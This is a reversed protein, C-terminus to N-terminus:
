QKIAEQMSRYRKRLRIMPVSVVSILWTLTPWWKSSTAMNDRLLVCVIEHRLQLIMSLKIQSYNNEIQNPFWIFQNVVSLKILNHTCRAQGVIALAYCELGFTSKHNWVLCLYYNVKWRPTLRRRRSPCPDRYVFLYM